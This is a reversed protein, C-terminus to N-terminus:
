ALFTPSIFPSVTTARSLISGLDVWSRGLISGLDICYFGSTGGGEWGGGRGDRVRVMDTDSLVTAYGGHSLVDLMWLRSRFMMERADMGLGVRHQDLQVPRGDRASQDTAVGRWRQYACHGVGAYHTELLFACTEPSDVVQRM